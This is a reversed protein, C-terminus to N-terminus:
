IVSERILRGVYSGMDWYLYTIDIGWYVEDTMKNMPGSSGGAPGRVRRGGAHVVKVRLFCRGRTAVPPAASSSVGCRREASM